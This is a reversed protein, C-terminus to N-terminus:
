LVALEEKLGFMEKNIIVYAKELNLLYEVKENSNKAKVNIEKNLRAYNVSLSVMEEGSFNYMVQAKLFDTYYRVTGFM